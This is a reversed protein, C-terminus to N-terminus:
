RQTWGFHERALGTMREPTWPPDWVLEVTIPTGQPLSAELVAHVQDVIMDTMPCAASTMTMQLRVGHESTDIAYVLGLDVINMGAEPDVVGRLAERVADDDIATM